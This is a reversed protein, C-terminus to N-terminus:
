ITVLSRVVWSGRRPQLVLRVRTHGAPYREDHTSGPMDITQKTTSVRTEVVAWDETSRKLFGIKWNDATADGGRIAGGGRYTARISAVGAACGTCRLALGELRSTQGTRQAFNVNAFYFRVFAEAAAAGRGKAAAPLTPPTPDGATSSSGSPSTSPSSSGSPAVRPEPDDGSCGGAALVLVLPLRAIVARAGAVIGIM